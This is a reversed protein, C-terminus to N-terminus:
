RYDEYLTVVAILTQPSQGGLLYTISADNGDKKAAHHDNVCQAVDRCFKGLENIDAHPDTKFVRIQM